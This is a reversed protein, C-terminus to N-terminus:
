CHATFYFCIRLMKWKSLLILQSLPFSGSAPFSQLRSSFPAVSSSITPHCWQSLPSSNSCARPTPSPCALRAHRLRHPWLSDSVVLPSLLLLSFSTAKTWLRVGYFFFFLGDALTFVNKGETCAVVKETVGKRQGSQILDLYYSLFCFTRPRLRPGHCLIPHLSPIANLLAPLLWALPSCLLWEPSPNTSFFNM